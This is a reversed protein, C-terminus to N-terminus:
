PIHFLNANKVTLCVPLSAKSSLLTFSLSLLYILSYFFQLEFTNQSFFAFINISHMIQFSLLSNKFILISYTNFNFYWFLSTFPLSHSCFLHNLLLNLKNIKSPYQVSKWYYLLHGDVIDINSISFESNGVSVLFFKLYPFPLPAKGLIIASLGRPPCLSMIGECFEDAVKLSSSYSHHSFSDCIGM